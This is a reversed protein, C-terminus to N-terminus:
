RVLRFLLDAVCVPKEGGAREVTGCVLVDLWSEGPTLSEVRFRGRVRSGAPVPAPFRVRNLGYNLITSYGDLPALESWFHALLSLTLFGHATLEGYPGAEALSPTVHISEHDEIAAAFVDIRSQPVEVWASPGLEAGLEIM